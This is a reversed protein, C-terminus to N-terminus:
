QSFSLIGQARLKQIIYMTTETSLRCLQAIREVTRQGDILQYVKRTSADQFQNLPTERIRYPIASSTLPMVAPIASSTQPSIALPATQSSLYVRSIQDTNQPSMTSTQWELVGALNLISEIRNLAISGQNPGVWLQCAVIQGRNFTIQIKGAANVGAITYMRAAPIEAELLGNFDIAHLRNVIIVGDLQLSTM